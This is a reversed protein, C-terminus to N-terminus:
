EDWYAIPVRANPFHEMLWAYADDVSKEHEREDGPTRIAPAHSMFEPSIIEGTLVDKVRSRYVIYGDSYTPQDHVLEHRKLLELRGVRTPSDFGWGGRLIGDREIVGSSFGVAHISWGEPATLIDKSSDYSFGLEELCAQIHPVIREGIGIVSCADIVVTQM